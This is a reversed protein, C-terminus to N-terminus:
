PSIINPHHVSWSCEQEATSGIVSAASSHAMDRGEIRTNLVTHGFHPLCTPGATLRLRHITGSFYSNSPKKTRQSLLLVTLNLSTIEGRLNAQAPANEQNVKQPQHKHQLAQRQPIEMQLCRSFSPSFCRIHCQSLAGFVTAKFEELQEGLVKGQRTPVM